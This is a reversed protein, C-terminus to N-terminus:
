GGLGGACTVSTRLNRYYCGGVADGPESISEMTIGLDELEKEYVIFDYHNRAFRDFKHVLIIDFAKARTKGASGQQNRGTRYWDRGCM